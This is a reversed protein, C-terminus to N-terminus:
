SLVLLSLQSTASSPDVLKDIPEMDDLIIQDAALLLRSPPISLEASIRLKTESVLEGRIYDLESKSDSSILLTPCYNIVLKTTVEIQKTDEIIPDILLDSLIAAISEELAAQLVASEVDVGLLYSAPSSVKLRKTEGDDVSDSTEDKVEDGGLSAPFKRKKNSVIQKPEKKWLHIEDKMRKTHCPKCLITTKALEADILQKSFHSGRLKAPGYKKTSPDIYYLHMYSLLDPNAPENCASCKGFELKKADVYARNEKMKAVRHEPMKYKKEGTLFPERLLKNEKQTEVEHCKFCLFRGKKLEEKMIRLTLDLIGKVRGNKTRYKEERKYHAFELKDFEKEGCNACGGSKAKAENYCAKTESDDFERKIKKAKLHCAYHINTKKEMKGSSLREEEKLDNHCFYCKLGERLHKEETSKKKYCSRCVLSGKKLEEKLELPNLEWIKVRNGGKTFRQDDPNRYIFQLRHLNKQSSCMTCGGSSNKIENKAEAKRAKYSKRSVQKECKVHYRGAYKTSTAMDEPSIPLKCELCASSM